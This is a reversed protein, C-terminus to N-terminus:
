EQAGKTQQLAAEMCRRPHKSSLEAKLDRLPFRLYYLTTQIRQHGLLKSIPLVGMGRQLLHTSSVHQFSARPSHMEHAGFSAESISASRAETKFM